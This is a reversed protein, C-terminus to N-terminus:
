EEEERAPADSETSVFRLTPERLASNGIEENVDVVQGIRFEAEGIWVRDPGYEYLIKM